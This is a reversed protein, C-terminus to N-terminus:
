PIVRQEKLDAALKDAIVRYALATPHSDPQFYVAEKDADYPAVATYDLCRIGGQELLPRMVNVTNSGPFFIVFFGQSDFRKEFEVRCQSVLRAAFRRERDTLRVPWDSFLTGILGLRDAVIEWFTDHPPHALDVLGQRALGGDRTAVYHPVRLGSTTALFSRRLSARELHDDIYTYVLFGRKERVGPPFRPDTLLALLNNPGWSCVGYNYVDIKKGAVRQAFQSPLTEDDNVGDGFAFSCPAFMAFSSWDDGDQVTRRRGYDDSNYVATAYLTDRYYKKYVQNENPNIRLGLWEDRAHFAHRNPYNAFKARGPPERVEGEVHAVAVALGIAALLGFGVALLRRRVILLGRKLPIPILAM